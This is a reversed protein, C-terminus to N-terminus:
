QIAKLFQFSPLPSSPKINQHNGKQIILFTTTLLGLKGHILISKDIVKLNEKKLLKRISISLTKPSKFGKKLLALPVEVWMVPWYLLGGDKLTRAAEKIYTIQGEKTMFRTAGTQFILDFSNDKVESMIQNFDEVVIEIDTLKEKLVILQSESLDSVRINKYGNNYLIKTIIGSGGARECIKIDKNSFINDTYDSIFKALRDRHFYQKALRDYFRSKEESTYSNDNNDVFAWKFLAWWSIKKEKM